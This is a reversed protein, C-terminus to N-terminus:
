IVAETGRKEKMKGAHRGVAWLSQNARVVRRIKFSFPQVGPVEKRRKRRKKKKYDKIM